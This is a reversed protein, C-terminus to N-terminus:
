PVDPGIRARRRKTLMPTHVVSGLWFQDFTKGNEHPRINFVLLNVQDASRQNERTRLVGSEVDLGVDRADLFERAAHGAQDGIEVRLAHQRSEVLHQKLFYVKPL